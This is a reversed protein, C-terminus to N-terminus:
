IVLLRLNAIEAQNRHNSAGREYQLQDIEVQKERPEFVIEYRIFFYLYM